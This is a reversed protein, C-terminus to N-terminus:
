YENCLDSKAELIDGNGGIPKLTLVASKLTILIKSRVGYMIMVPAPARLRM